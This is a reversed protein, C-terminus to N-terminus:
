RTKYDMKKYDTITGEATTSTFKGICNGGTGGEYGLVICWVEMTNQCYAYIKTRKDLNSTYDDISYVGGGNETYKYINEATLRDLRDDDSVDLNAIIIRYNKNLYQTPFREIETLYNRYSPNRFNSKFTSSMTIKATNKSNYTNNDDTRATQLNGYKNKTLVWVGVVKNETIEGVNVTTTTVDAGLDLIFDTSVQPLTPIYGIGVRVQVGGRNKDDIDFAWNIKLDGATSIQKLSVAGYRGVVNSAILANADGGGGGTKISEIGSVLENFTPLDGVQSVTGGKGIIATTLNTKGSIVKNTNANIDDIISM